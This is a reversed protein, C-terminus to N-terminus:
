APWFERVAPEADHKELAAEIVPPYRQPDDTADMRERLFVRRVRSKRFAATLARVEIATLDPHWLDAILVVRRAGSRNWVEHEWSDEFMLCKGEEWTRTETGVRMSCGEPITIGLHIRVRLNDISCHARLHAGPNMASLVFDGWTYDLCAGPLSNVIAHTRPCQGMVEEVSAGMHYLLYLTWTRPRADPLLLTWPKRWSRWPHAAKSYDLSAEERLGLAEERIIDFNEELIRAAASARPDRWARNDLGPFLPYKPHVLPDPPPPRADEGSCLRLFRKMRELEAGGAMVRDYFGGARWEEVVKVLHHM